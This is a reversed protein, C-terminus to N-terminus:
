TVTSQCRCPEWCQWTSIVGSSSSILCCLLCGDDESANWHMREDIWGGYFFFFVALSSSNCKIQSSNGWLIYIGVNRGKLNIFSIDDHMNWEDKMDSLLFIGCSMDNCGTGKYPLRNIQTKQCCLQWWCIDDCYHSGDCRRKERSLLCPAILVSVLIQWFQCALVLAKM